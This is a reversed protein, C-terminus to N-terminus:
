RSLGPALGWLGAAADLAVVAKPPLAVSAGGAEIARRFAARHGFYRTDAAGTRKELGCALETFGALSAMAQCLQGFPATAALESLSVSSALEEFLGVAEHWRGLLFALTADLLLKAEAPGEYAGDRLEEQEARAADDFRGGYALWLAWMSAPPPLSSPHSPVIARFRRQARELDGRYLLFRVAALSVEIEGSREARAELAEALFAFTDPAVRAIEPDFGLHEFASAYDLLGSGGPEAALAEGVVAELRACVTAPYPFSFSEEPLPASRGARAEWRAFYEVGLRGAEGQSRRFSRVLAERAEREEGSALLLCARLPEVLEPEEFQFVEADLGELLAPAVSELFGAESLGRRRMDAEAAARAVRAFFGAVPKQGRRRELIDELLDPRAVLIEALARQYIEGFPPTALASVLRAGEGAELCAELQFPRWGRELSHRELLAPVPALWSDTEAPGRRPAEELATKLAQSAVEPELGVDLAAGGDSGKGLAGFASRLAGMWSGEGGKACFWARAEGSASSLWPMAAENGALVFPSGFRRATAALWRSAQTRLGLGIVGRAGPRLGGRDFAEIAQESAFVRLSGGGPFAEPLLTALAILEPSAAPEYVLDLVEPEAAEGQPRTPEPVPPLFRGKGRLAWRLLPPVNAPIEATMWPQAVLRAAAFPAERFGDEALSEESLMVVCQGAPTELGDAQFSEWAVLRCCAGRESEAACSAESSGADAPSRSALWAFLGRWPAYAPTKLLRRDIRWRVGPRNGSPASSAADPEIM